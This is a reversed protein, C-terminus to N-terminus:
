KMLEKEDYEYRTEKKLFKEAPEIMRFNVKRKVDEKEYDTNGKFEDCVRNLLRDHAFGDCLTFNNKKCVYGWDYGAMGVMKKYICNYCCEKM